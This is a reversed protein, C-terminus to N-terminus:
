WRGGDLLRQRWALLEHEPVRKIRDRYSDDCAVHGLHYATFIPTSRVSHLWYAKVGSTTLCWEGPKARCYECFYELAVDDLENSM